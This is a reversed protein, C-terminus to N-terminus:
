ADQNDLPCKGGLEVSCRAANGLRCYYNGTYAGKVAQPCAKIKAQMEETIEYEM